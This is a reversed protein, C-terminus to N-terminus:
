PRSSDAMVEQRNWWGGGLAQFLAITDAYRNAQAQVRSLRTQLYAQQALLIATVSLDGLEYQRTAINLSKAAAAEATQTAVFAQTDKDIAQLTDAVERFASLVTSRYLAAAQDFAAEAARQQHMLSGGRFVPQALSGALMWIGTGASFLQSMEAATKGISASLVINPLRNAIAVGVLANASRLNEAAARVDPRQDVLKSPLSLPLTQPLQLSSLDFRSTLEEGPFRGSLVLLLHRQQALQKEMPPLAAQAVALATEQLAIDAVASHGLVHQRRLMELLKQNIAISERTAEIQGRLSAEQVAANAVNTTLSLYTAEQQFRLSDAQAQLSEVSRKVGGFLSPSYGVSLQATHLNYITPGDASGVTKQRTPQIGADVTPFFAGRGALAIENANRLAAQAAELDPNAKIAQDILENLPASHFLTWWQGPIDMDNVLQQANLISPVEAQEATASEPLYRDIAPAAPRKFDPGAACGALSLLLASCLAVTMPRSTMAEPFLTKM